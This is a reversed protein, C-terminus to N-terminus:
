FFAICLFGWIFAAFSDLCSKPCGNSSTEIIPQKTTVVAAETTTTTTTTTPMSTSTKGETTVLTTEAETTTPQITTTQEVTTTESETTYHKKYFKFIATALAKVYYMQEPMERHSRASEIQIADVSGGNRSGYTKTTYGGSYYSTDSPSPYVPSPIADYGELLLYQGLSHEGRLIDDMEYPSRELLNRISTMNETYNGSNLRAKTVAYGLEARAIDHGHGHIDFIIGSGNLALKSEELYGYYENYVDIMSQVGFCAEEIERNFDLVRRNINGMIATPCVGAIGCLEERLAVTMDKTYLDNSRTTKCRTRDTKGCGRRFICKQGDWCGANPRDREPSLTGGHGSILIIPLGTGEVYEVYASGDVLTMCSLLLLSWPALVPM